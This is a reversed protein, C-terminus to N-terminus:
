FSKLEVFYLVLMKYMGFGFVWWWFCVLVGCWCGLFFGLQYCCRSCGNSIPAERTETRRRRGSPAAVIRDRWVGGGGGKLGMGGWLAHAGHKHYEGTYANFAEAWTCISSYTIRNDLTRTARRQRAYPPTETARAALPAQGAKNPTRGEDGNLKRTIIKILTNDRAAGEDRTRGQRSIM